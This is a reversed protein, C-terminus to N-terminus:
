KIYRYKKGISFTDFVINREDIVGNDDSVLFRVDLTKRKDRDSLYQNEQIRSHIYVDPENNNIQEM